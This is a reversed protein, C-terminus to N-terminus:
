YLYFFVQLLLMKFCFGFIKKTYILTIIELCVMLIHQCIDCFYGRSKLSKSNLIEPCTADIAGEPCRFSLNWKRTVCLLLFFRRFTERVKARSIYWTFLFLHAIWVVYFFMMHCLFSPYDVTFVTVDHSLSLYTLRCYITYCWTVHTFNTIWM